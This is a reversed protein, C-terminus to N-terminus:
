RPGFNQDRGAQYIRSSGSATAHQVVPAAAPREPDLEALVERLHGAAEPHATLLRRLRGQWEAALEASLDPDPQGDAHGALLDDRSVDLEAAIVAAREPLLRQWLSVFQEKARQWGDTTLLTVLTAAATGALANVEPNVDGGKRAAEEPILSALWGPVRWPQGSVPIGSSSIARGSVALQM